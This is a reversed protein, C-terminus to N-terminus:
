STDDIIYSLIQNLISQKDGNKKMVDIGKMKLVMSLLEELYKPDDARQKGELFAEEIMSAKSAENVQNVDLKEDILVNYVQQGTESQFLEIYKHILPEDDATEGQLVFSEEPRSPDIAHEKLQGREKANNIM